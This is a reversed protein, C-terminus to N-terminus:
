NNIVNQYILARQSSNDLTKYNGKATLFQNFNFQYRRYLNFLDEENYNEQMVAKEILIKEVDDLDISEVKELVNASLLYKWVEKSTNENPIYEFDEVVRHSLHVLYIKIQYKIVKKKM